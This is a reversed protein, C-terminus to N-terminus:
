KKFPPFAASVSSVLGLRLGAAERAARRTKGLRSDVKARKIIADDNAALKQPTRVASSSVDSSM